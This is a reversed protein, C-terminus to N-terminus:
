KSNCQKTNGNRTSYIVKDIKKDIFLVIYIFLLLHKKSRVGPVSPRTKHLILM